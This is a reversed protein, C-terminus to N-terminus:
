DGTTPPTRARAATAPHATSATNPWPTSAQLLGKPAERRKMLLRRWRPETVAAVPRLSKKEDLPWAAARAAGRRLFGGAGRAASGFPCPAGRRWRALRPVRPGVDGSRGCPGGRVRVAGDISRRPRSPRRRASRAAPTPASRGRPSPALLRRARMASAFAAAPSRPRAAPRTRPRRRPSRRAPPCRARRERAAVQAHAPRQM